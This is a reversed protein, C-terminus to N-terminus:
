VMEDATHLDVAVRSLGPPAPIRRMSAHHAATRAAAKEASVNWPRVVDVKSSLVAPAPGDAM